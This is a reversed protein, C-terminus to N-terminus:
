PADTGAYGWESCEPATLNLAYGFGGDAADHVYVIQAYATTAVHVADGIVQVLYAGRAVPAAATPLKGLNVM